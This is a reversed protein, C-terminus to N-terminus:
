LFHQLGKRALDDAAEIGEVGDHGPAAMFTINNVCDNRLMFFSRALLM